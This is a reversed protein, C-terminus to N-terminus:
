ERWETEGKYKWKQALQYKQLGQYINHTTRLMGDVRVGQSVRWIGIPRFDRYEKVLVFTGKPPTEDM